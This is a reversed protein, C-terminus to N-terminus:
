LTVDIIRCGQATLEVATRVMGHRYGALDLLARVTARIRAQDTDAGEVDSRQATVETVFHMGDVSLTWVDFTPWAPPEDGLHPGQYGGEELLRQLVATGPLESVAWGLRRSIERVVAAARAATLAAAESGLVPQLMSRTGCESHIIRDIGYVHACRELLTRLADPDALSALLLRRAPLGAAALADSTRVAPDVVAWVRLDSAVAARVASAPPLVLLVRSTPHGENM